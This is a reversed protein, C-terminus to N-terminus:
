RSQAERDERRSQTERAAHLRNAADRARTRALASSLDREAAIDRGNQELM